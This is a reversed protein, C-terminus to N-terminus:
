IYIYIMWMHDMRLYDMYDMYSDGKPFRGSRFGFFVFGGGAADRLVGAPTGRRPPGVGPSVFM